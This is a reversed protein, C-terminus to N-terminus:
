FKVIVTCGQPNFWLTTINCHWGAHDSYLKWAPPIWLRHRGEIDKVWGEEELTTMSVPWDEGYYTRSVRLSRYSPYHLGHMVDSLYYQCDSLQPPLQTLKLEEGTGTHYAHTVFASSFRHPSRRVVVTQGQISFMSNVDPTPIAWISDGRDAWKDGPPGDVVGGETLRWAIMVERDVVLLVNGTLALAQIYGVGTDIFQSPSQSLLNTIVVTGSGVHSTVVYTGCQSLVALSRRPNPGDPHAVLPRDLRWVRLFDSFWGAISSFDPSFQLSGDGRRTPFEGWTTYQSSGYKWIQVRKGWNFAAAFLSGDSSFCCFNSGGGQNSLLCEWNRIDFINLQGDVVVAIRYTTPSFSEIKISVGSGLLRARFSEIKTLASGVEFFNITWTHGVWGTTIIRFSKNHAWLHPADNSHLAHHFQAAGSDVNYVRVSYDPHDVEHIIGIARGDLSWVLPLETLAGCEVEKAVGGTQIDWIIFSNASLAALSHGDPSYAPTGFLQYAPETPRLTSLLESTLPDLIETARQSNIALFQGCPSWALSRHGVDRGYSATSCQDWSGQTGVVVRPFPTHRQHYYLQRVISTLPSLELASHYIHVASVNIPEFFTTM